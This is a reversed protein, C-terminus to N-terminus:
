GARRRSSRRGNRQAMGESGVLRQHKFHTGALQTSYRDTSYFSLTELGQFRTLCYAFSDPTCLHKNDWLVTWGSKTPFALHLSASIRFEEVSAFLEDLSAIKTWDFEYGLGTSQRLRECDARIAKATDQIGAHVLVLSQGLPWWKDFVKDKWKPM